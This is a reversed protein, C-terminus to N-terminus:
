AWQRSARKGSTPGRANPPMPPCIWSWACHRATPASAGAMPTAIRMAMCTWCPRPRAPSYENLSSKFSPDYGWTGPPMLGQALAMQNRQVLRIEQESRYALSIARRLAVQHAEYGGVMPHEMNFIVQNTDANAYVVKRVGRKVLNPALQGNPVAVPTFEGPLEQILEAEKSLFSLWRPQPEEIISIEIRDIMPLKRGKFQQAIAQLDPRGAPAEENYLEERFSPNKVLVIRSSRRWEDRKLMFAGTGVPHESIKDGYAEVAERALAAALPNTLNHAFRPDPKGLRIQWTYKDM